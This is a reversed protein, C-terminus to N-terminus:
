VEIQIPTLLQDMLMAVEKQKGPILHGYVDLTISPRAHGLRRSVIMVPIGNNLMLSAGTHRLDHFRIAPLGADKLIRKFRRLLNDRDFATGIESPFILDNEQWKEGVLQMQTFQRQRHERLIRLTNEGLDIRRVGAKTKPATFEFGKGKKKTLQRQVQLLGQEWDLDSWKLGLLEGQRMGTAIALHYLAFFRDNRAQATILLQQVQNEDLFQMEKAKPKPPTTADDPNRPILGLKVAHVLARHIVSHVLQVTRLGYEKKVMQNYLQQIREPKLDRLQIKGLTPLIHQRTIQSYQKFTNYRISPEISVLWDEMFREVSVQTSDYTLGNDIEDLMGRIWNQGGRKTKATYTLRRGQLTVMARWTGNNRKYISGENNGRKKAM